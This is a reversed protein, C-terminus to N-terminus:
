LEFTFHSPTGSLFLHCYCVPVCAGSFKSSPSATASLSPSLPLDATLDEPNKMDTEKKPRESTETQTSLASQSDPFVNLQLLPVPANGAQPLPLLNPPPGTRIPAPVRPVTDRNSLKPHCLQIITLPHILNDITATAKIWVSIQYM